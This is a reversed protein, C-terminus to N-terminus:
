YDSIILSFYYEEDSKTRKTEIKSTEKTIRRKKKHLKKIM